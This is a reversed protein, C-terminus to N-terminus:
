RSKELIIMETLNLLLFPLKSDLLGSFIILLPAAGETLYGSNTSVLLKSLVPVRFRFRGNCVCVSVSRASISFSKSFRLSM